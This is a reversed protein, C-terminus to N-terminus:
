YGLNKPTVFSTLTAYKYDGYTTDIHETRGTITIQIQRIGSVTSTAVGDEDFYSFTLAAINEAFPQAGAGSERDIQDNMDDYTYTISETNSIIGDGDYDAQVTMTGTSAISIGSVGIGAPDYGSMRCDKVIIDMASRMYQQMESIDEQVTFTKHQILLIKIATGLLIVSIALGITIELITFGSEKPKQLLFM